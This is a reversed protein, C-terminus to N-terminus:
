KKKIARLMERKGLAGKLADLEYDLETLHRKLISNSAYTVFVGNQNQFQALNKFIKFEWLEEQSSKSFADFYIIDFHTIKSTQNELYEEIKTNIKTIKFIIKIDNELNIEINNEKNWDFNIILNIIDLNIFEFSIKNENQAFFQIYAEKLINLKIPYAEIGIYNLNINNLYSVESKKFYNCMENITLVLNLFSGLGVELINIVKSDFNFKLWNLLGNQIFVYKSESIAGNLSHYSQKFDNSYFSFSGDKTQILEADAYNM